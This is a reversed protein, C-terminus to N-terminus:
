TLSVSVEVTHSLSSTRVSQSRARERFVWSCSSSLESAWFVSTSWDARSLVARSSSHHLSLFPLPPPRPAPPPSPPSPLSLPLSLHLLLFPPPPEDLRHSQPAPPHVSPRVSPLTKPRSWHPPIPSTKPDSHSELRQKVLKEWPAAPITERTCM